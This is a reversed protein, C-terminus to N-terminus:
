SAAKVKAKPMDPKIHVDRLQHPDAETPAGMLLDEAQQNMPFAIVERVNHEDALFM